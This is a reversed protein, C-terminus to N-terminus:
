TIQLNISWSKSASPSIWWVTKEKVADRLNDRHTNTLELGLNYQKNWGGETHWYGIYELEKSSLKINTKEGKINGKYSVHYTGDKDPELKSFLKDAFPIM